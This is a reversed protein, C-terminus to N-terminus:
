RSLPPPSAQSYPDESDNDAEDESAPVVIEQLVLERAQQALGSVHAVREPYSASKPVPHQKQLDAFLSEYQQSARSEVEQAATELEGADKLAQYEEPRNVRFSELFAQGFSGLPASM